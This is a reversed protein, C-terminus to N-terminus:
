ASRVNSAFKNEDDKHEGDDHIVKHDRISTLVCLIVAVAFLIGVFSTHENVWVMGVSFDDLYMWSFITILGFIITLLRLIFGRKKIVALREEDHVGLGALAAVRRRRLVAGIAFVIAMGIAAISLIMSLFSWVGSADLGGLPVLGDILNMLLNPGQMAIREDDIPIPDSSAAVPPAEEPPEIVELEDIPPPMDDTVYNAVVVYIATGDEEEYTNFTADAIYYAIASYSQVGRYVATVEYRMPLGRTDYAPPNTFAFTAGTLELMKTEHGSPDTGSTVTFPWLKDVDDVDNTKMPAKRVMDVEEEYVLYQPTLKLDGLGKIDRIQEPSLAGDVRYTYTRVTPLESELVPDSVSVLRYTFGFRVIEQPIDPTEGEAYRYEMQMTGGVAGEPPPEAAFVSMPLALTLALMLAIIIFTKKM